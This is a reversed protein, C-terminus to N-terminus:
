VRALICSRLELAQDPVGNSRQWAGIAKILDTRGASGIANPQVYSAIEEFIEKGPFRQRWSGDAIAANAAGHAAHLAATVTARSALSPCTLAVKDFWDSGFIHTEADSLSSIPGPQRPYGYVAAQQTEALVRACAVWWIRRGVALEIKRQIDITSRRATNLVCGALAVPDLLLNEFEHVDLRYVQGPAIAGWKHRNTTGFDCDVLGFIHAHGAQRAQECVTKVSIHGGAVLIRITPATGLWVAELWARTGPDEVWLVAKANKYHSDIDIM